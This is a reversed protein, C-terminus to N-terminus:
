QDAELLAQNLEARIEPHREIIRIIIPWEKSDRMTPVNVQLNVQNNPSLEGSLQALLRLGERVEKSCKTLINYDKTSQCEKFAQEMRDVLEGARQAVSRVTQQVIAIEAPTQYEPVQVPATIAPITRKMCIDKHRKIANKDTGFMTGIKRLSDRAIIARDIAERQPHDCVQCM